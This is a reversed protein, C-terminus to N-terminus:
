ASFSAYSYDTNYKTASLKRYMNRYHIEYFVYLFSSMTWLRQMPYDTLRIMGLRFLERTINLNLYELEAFNIENNNVQITM